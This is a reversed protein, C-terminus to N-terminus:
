DLNLKNLEELITDIENVPLESGDVLEKIAFKHADTFSLKYSDVDPARIYNQLIDHVTTASVTDGAANSQEGCFAKWIRSVERLKKRVASLVM